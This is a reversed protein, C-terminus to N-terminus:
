DVEFKTTAGAFRRPGMRPRKAVPRWGEAGARRRRRQVLVQVPQDFILRVGWNPEKGEFMYTELRGNFAVISGPGVFEQDRTM